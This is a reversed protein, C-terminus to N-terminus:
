YMGGMGGGHGAGVAAMEEDEKIDAILVETTLMLSVISAANQLALRTVKAPDIVGAKIMDGFEGTEANFGFNEEKSDRVRGVVIAGEHGANQAIQRAPEELARKVISVGTAEDDQLKLKELAPICRLLAVGGGPVIGEEVAARTAHMADEVRAKKEKLETETAAGVKIVAVGGVLKALREQLKEKDYDSNADEIQTRLQKIRGEIETAKGAGAIITTNDKDIIVKKARGLEEIKVNELKVGLDESIAKGGTLIAIDELMEKRRDGFGPAKVAVCQLTGRLKNVVLTALAEGEVDESIILLPKSVKTTQELLPLLERLSTIKKEHVLICVDELVCEMTEPATVFYPSLYGRDFQMGEVVELTTEMTKSEEVTIVGDKGVKKMAEA